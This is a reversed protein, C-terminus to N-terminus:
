AAGPFGAPSPLVPSRVGVEIRGVVYHPESLGGSGLARFEM